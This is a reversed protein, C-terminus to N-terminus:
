LLHNCAAAQCQQSELAATQLDLGTVVFSFCWPAQHSLLRFLPNQCAAAPLNKSSEGIPSLTARWPYNTLRVPNTFRTFSLRCSPGVYRYVSRYHHHPGHVWAGAGICVGDCM